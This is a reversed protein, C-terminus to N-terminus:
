LKVYGAPSTIRGTLASASATAPSVFYIQKDLDSIDIFDTSLGKENDALFNSQSMSNNWGPPVIVAGAEIFARIIGKKVSELYVARSGPQIFLRVDPAIKKGKLIEASIKLDDFKGNVAGGIFISQIPIGNLEEIPRIERISKNGASCPKISNVDFTYEASYVANRDALIPTFAKQVRSNIYRRITADYPCIAGIAGTVSSLACLTFRESVSMRDVASGYFEIIKNEAVGNELSSIVHHIVDRSFVSRPLRGSLNVKLTEPVNFEYKGTSMVGSLENGDMRISLAGIAGMAALPNCNGLALQGPLVLGKELVALCLDGEGIDFFGTINQFRVFERIIKGTSATEVQNQHETMGDLGVAVRNSNWVYTTGLKHFKQVISWGERDFAILDPEIEYEQGYQIDKEGIKQSVMKQIITQRGKGLRFRSRNDRTYLELSLQELKLAEPKKDIKYRRRWNYFAAKSIGLELGAHFDDGFRDWVECIEKESFKPFSYNSIGKKRRWYAVLHETVGGGLIEAIRKDTRYLKQLRLLEAKNPMRRPSM